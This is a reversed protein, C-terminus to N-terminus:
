PQKCASASQACAMDVLKALNAVRVPSAGQHKVADQSSGWSTVGVLVNPTADAGFSTGNLQPVVGFNVFWGGGSSGGCMLSGIVTNSAYDTSIVAHSDNRQMLGGQDLCAPYGIQTVHSLGTSTFGFKDSRPYAYWGTDRGPFYSKGQADTQQRLVIVAIDNECVVGAQSCKDSGDLYSQLVYIKEAAWSGYPAAGARYGPAFRFDSYYANKGFSSVCHAATAVLGPGILSGSCIFSAGNEKFFLKGSARYPYTENTPWANGPTRELDARATTFPRMSTGAQFLVAVDPLKPKGLFKPARKGTGAHGQSIELEAPLEFAASAQPAQVSARIDKAVQGSDYGQAIPLQRPLANVYDPSANGPGVAHASVSVSASAAGGPQALASVAGFMACTVIVDAKM